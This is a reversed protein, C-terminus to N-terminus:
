EQRSHCPRNRTHDSRGPWDYVDQFLFRHISCLQAVTGDPVPLDDMLELVRATVLSHEIEALERQTRAGALNSLLQDIGMM